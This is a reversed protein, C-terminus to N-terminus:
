QYAERKAQALLDPLAAYLLRYCGGDTIPLEEKVAEHRCAAVGAQAIRVRTADDM